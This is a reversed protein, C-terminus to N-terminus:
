PSGTKDLSLLRDISSVSKRMLYGHQRGFTRGVQESRTMTAMFKDLSRLKGSDGAINDWALDFWRQIRDLDYGWELRTWVNIPGMHIYPFDPVKYDYGSAFFARSEGVHVRSFSQGNWIFLEM